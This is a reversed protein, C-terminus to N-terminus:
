ITFYKDPLLEKFFYIKDIIYQYEVRFDMVEFGESDYYIIHQKDYGLSSTNHYAIVICVAFAAAALSLIKFQKM